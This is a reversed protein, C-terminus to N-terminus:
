QRSRLYRVYRVMRMVEDEQKCNDYSWIKKGKCYFDICMRKSFVGRYTVSTAEVRSLDFEEKEWRYICFIRRNTMFVVGTDNFLIHEQMTEAAALVYEGRELMQHYIHRIEAYKNSMIFDPLHSKNWDETTGTSAHVNASGRASPADEVSPRPSVGNSALSPTSSVPCKTEAAVPHQAPMEERKLEDGVKRENLITKGRSAYASPDWKIRNGKWGETISRVCAGFFSLHSIDVEKEGNPLVTVGVNDSNDFVVGKADTNLMSTGQKNNGTSSTKDSM